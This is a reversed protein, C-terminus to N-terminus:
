LIDSIKKSIDTPLVMIKVDSFTNAQKNGLINTASSVLQDQNVCAMGTEHSGCVVMSALSM